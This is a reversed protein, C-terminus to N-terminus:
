PHLLFKSDPAEDYRPVPQMFAQLAAAWFEVKEFDYHLRDIADELKRVIRDPLAGNAHM